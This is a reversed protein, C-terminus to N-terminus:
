RALLRDRGRLARLRSVVDRPLWVRYERGPDIEPELAVILMSAIVLYAKGSITVGIM